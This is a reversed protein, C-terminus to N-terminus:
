GFLGKLLPVVTTGILAVGGGAMLQIMASNNDLPSQSNKQLAFAALRLQGGFPNNIYIM